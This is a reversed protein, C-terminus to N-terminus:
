QTIQRDTSCPGDAEPSSRSSSRSSRNSRSSAFSSAPNAPVLLSCDFFAGGAYSETTLSAAAAGAFNGGLTQVLMKWFSVAVCSALARSTQRRQFWIMPWLGVRTSLSTSVKGRPVTSVLLQAGIWVSVLEVLSRWVRAAKRSSVMTPAAEQHGDIPWFRCVSVRISQLTEISMSSSISLAVGARLRSESVQPSLRKKRVRGSTVKVRCYRSCRVRALMRWTSIRSMKLCIQGRSFVSLSGPSFRFSSNTTAAIRKMQAAWFVSSSSSSAPSGPSSHSRMLSAMPICSRRTFTTEPARSSIRRARSHSVKGVTSPKIVGVLRTASLTRVVM